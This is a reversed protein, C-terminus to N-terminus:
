GLYPLEIAGQENYAEQKIRAEALEEYDFQYQFFHAQSQALTDFPVSIQCPTVLGNVQAFFILTKNNYEIRDLFQIAQNM